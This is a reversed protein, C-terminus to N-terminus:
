GWVLRRVERSLDRYDDTKMLETPTRSTNGIPAGSYGAFVRLPINGMYQVFETFYPELPLGDEDVVKLIEYNGVSFCKCRGMWRPAMYIGRYWSSGPKVESSQREITYVDRPEYTTMRGFSHIKLEAYTLDSTGSAKPCHSGWTGFPFPFNWSGPCEKFQFSYALNYATLSVYSQRLDAPNYMWGLLPASPPKGTSWAWMFPSWPAYLVREEPFWRSNQFTSLEEAVVDGKMWFVGRMERPVHEFVGPVKTCRYMLLAGEAAGIDGWEYSELATLNKLLSKCEDAVAAPQQAPLNWENLYESGGNYKQVLPYLAAIPSHQAKICFGYWPVLLVLLTCCALQCCGKCRRATFCGAGSTPATHSQLAPDLAPDLL